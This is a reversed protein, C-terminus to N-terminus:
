ALKGEEAAGERAAMFRRKPSKDLGGHHRRRGGQGGMVMAAAEGRVICPLAVRTGDPELRFQRM